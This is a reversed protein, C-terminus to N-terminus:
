IKLLSSIKWVMGLITRRFNSMTVTQTIATLPVSFAASLEASSSIFSSSPLWKYYSLFYTPFIILCKEFRLSKNDLACTPRGWRYCGVGYVNMTSM